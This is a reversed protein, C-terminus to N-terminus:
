GKIGGLNADRIQKKRADTIGGTATTKIKPVYYGIFKAGVAWAKIYEDADSRSIADVGIFWGNREYHYYKHPETM